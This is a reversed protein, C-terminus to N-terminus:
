EDGDKLICNDGLFMLADKVSERDMCENDCILKGNEEYFTFNGFGKDSCWQLTVPQSVSVFSTKM